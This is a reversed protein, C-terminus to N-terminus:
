NQINLTLDSGVGKLGASLNWDSGSIANFWETGLGGNGKQPGSGNDIVEIKIKEKNKSILIQVETAQGHRFSNSIAENIANGMEQSKAPALEGVSKDIKTKIKMLDNWKAVVKAVEAKLSEEPAAFYSASPVRLSEYAQALEKELARKDGKRGAKELAMASAMLRSQITGHLYKALERSLREEERKLLMAELQEKSLQRELFESEAHQGYFFASVFGIALILFVLLISDVYKAFENPTTLGFRNNLNSVIFQFIFSFSFLEVINIIFIWGSKKRHFAKILQLGLYLILIRILLNIAGNFFTSNEFIYRFNLALYGMLIWSPEIRFSTVVFRLLEFLKVRYVKEEGARHLHHSFPRITDLAAKRLRVAMLEWNKELSRGKEDFYEQSDMIVNLLNEDVKRTMSSKLSKIVAMSESKQSLHLMRDAILANRDSQYMELSAAFISIFPLFIMGLFGANVARILVYSTTSLDGLTLLNWFNALSGTTAGRIFGLVFGLIGVYYNPLPNRERDKFVTLDALLFITFLPILSIFSVLTWRWFAWWSSLAGEAIPVILLLFPLAYVAIKWSIAWRGGINLSVKKESM